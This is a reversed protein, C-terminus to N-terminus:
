SRASVRRMRNASADRGVDRWTSVSNCCSAVRLSSLPATTGFLREMRPRLWRLPAVTPANSEGCAKAKSASAYTEPGDRSSRWGFRKAMGETWPEGHGALVLDVPLPALADLSRLARESDANLGDPGIQPGTRGTLPNRTALADGTVLARQREFWIACSGPPIVPRTCWARVVPSTSRRM